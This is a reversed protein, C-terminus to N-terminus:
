RALPGSGREWGNIEIAGKRIRAAQDDISVDEGFLKAPRSLVDVTDELARFRGVERALAWWISNIMLRLVAV